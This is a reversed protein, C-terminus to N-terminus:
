PRSPGEGLSTLWARQRSKFDSTTSIAPPARPPSDNDSPESTDPVTMQVVAHSAQVPGQAHSAPNVPRAVRAAPGSHPDELSKYRHELSVQEAAMELLRPVSYITWGFCFMLLFLLAVRLKNTKLAYKLSSEGLIMDRVFPFLLSVLKLVSM